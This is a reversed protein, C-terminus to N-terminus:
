IAFINFFPFIVVAAILIFLTINLVNFINDGLSHKIKMGPHAKKAM